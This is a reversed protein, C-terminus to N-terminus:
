RRNQNLLQREAFALTSWNFSLRSSMWFLDREDILCPQAQQLKENLVRIDNILTVVEKPRVEARLPDPALCTKEVYNRALCLKRPCLGVHLFFIRNPHTM